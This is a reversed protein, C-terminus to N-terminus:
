ANDYVDSDNQYGSNIEGVARIKVIFSYNFKKGCVAM